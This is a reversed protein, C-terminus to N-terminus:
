WFLIEPLFKGNNALLMNNLTSPEDKTFRHTIFVLEDRKAVEPFKIERKINEGFVDALVRLAKFENESDIAFELGYGGKFKLSM